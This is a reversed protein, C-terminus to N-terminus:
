KWNELYNLFNTELWKRKHKKNKYLTRNFNCIKQVEKSDWKELLKEAADSVAQMRETDSLKDYGEDICTGFTKFGYNNIRELTNKTSLLVFPVGYALCRWTKESIHVVDSFREEAQEFISEVIINIKSDFLWKVSVDDFGVSIHKKNLEDPLTKVIDSGLEGFLETRFDIDFDSYNCLINVHTYQLDYKKFFGNFWLKELFKLKHHKVARNLILFDTSPKKDKYDDYNFIIPNKLIDSNLIFNTKEQLHKDTYYNKNFINLFGPYHLVNFKYNRFKITQFETILSNNTLFVINDSLLLNKQFFDLIEEYEGVDAVGEQSCDVIIKTKPNKLFIDKIIPTNKFEFYSTIYFSNVPIELVDDLEDVSNVGIIDLLDYVLPIFNNFRYCYFQM